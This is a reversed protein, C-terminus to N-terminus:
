TVLPINFVEFEYRRAFSHSPSGSTTGRVLLVHTENTQDGSSHTIINNAASITVKLLGASSLTTGRDWAGGNYVDYGDISNVIRRTKKVYITITLSAINAPQLATGNEDYVTTTYWSTTQEEVQDLPM